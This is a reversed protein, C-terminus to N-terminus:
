VYQGEFLLCQLFHLCTILKNVYIECVSRCNEVVSNVIYALVRVPLELIINTVSLMCFFRVNKLDMHDVAVCSKVHRTVINGSTATM